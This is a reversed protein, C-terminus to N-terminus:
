SHPARHGHAPTEALFRMLATGLAEALLPPVANGVQTYRPCEKTRRDGGTTYKGKFQFTDPFSQLRAMERVTLIRPESYHIIDDPLTTVTPAPLKPDLIYITHKKNAYPGRESQDLKKGRKCHDLYYEFAEETEKKHKAFRHSDALAGNLYGHMLQQYSSAQKGYTGQKFRPTEPCDQLQGTKKTLDSIAEQVTTHAPGLGKAALFSFRKRNLIAFPESDPKVEHPSKKRLGILIFRPRTQPVGFDKAQVIDSWVHYDAGLSDKIIQAYILPKGHSDRPADDGKFPCMIGRVNEMLVMKPQLLDVVKLYQRFLQNRPDHAQRRGISSFGQCPPGGALLDVQGRMAKLQHAHKDTLDELSLEERPLWDPWSFKTASDGLLNHKLTEFADSNKEVAFLGRWGANFLGLSLGGCGACLDVFTPPQPRRTM